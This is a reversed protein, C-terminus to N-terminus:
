LMQQLGKKKDILLRKPIRPRQERVQAGVSQLYVNERLEMGCDSTISASRQLRNESGQDGVGSNLVTLTKSLDRRKYYSQM